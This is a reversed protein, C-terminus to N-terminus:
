FMKADSPVSCLHSNDQVRNWKSELDSLMGFAEVPFLTGKQTIIFKVLELFDQVLLQSFTTSTTPM